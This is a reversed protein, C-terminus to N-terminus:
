DDELEEPEINFLDMIAKEAGCVDSAEHWSEYRVGNYTFGYADIDDYDSYDAMYGDYAEGQEARKARLGNLFDIAAERSITEVM